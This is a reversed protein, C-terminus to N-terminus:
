KLYFNCHNQNEENLPSFFNLREKVTTNIKTETNLNLNLINICITSMPIIKLKLVLFTDELQLFLGLHIAFGNLALGKSSCLWSLFM